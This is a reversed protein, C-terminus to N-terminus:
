KQPENCHICHPISRYDLALMEHQCVKTEFIKIIKPLILQFFEVICLIAFFVIILPSFFSIVMFEFIKEVDNGHSFLLVFTIVGCYLWITAIWDLM